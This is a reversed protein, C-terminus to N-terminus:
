PFREDAGLLILHVERVHSTLPNEAPDHLNSCVASRHVQQASILGLDGSQQGPKQETIGVFHMLDMCIVERGYEKVRQVSVGEGNRRNDKSV